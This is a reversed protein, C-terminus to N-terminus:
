PNLNDKILEKFRRSIETSVPGPETAVTVGNVAEIYQTERLSSSLFAEQFRHETLSEIPTDVEKAGLYEVILDRTVGALCGSSLTPTILEGDMLLFVNSGSGECLNGAINKFIVETSGQSIAWDLGVVNEAYSNTKIGALVGQENRPWPAVHVRASPALPALPSCAVVTLPESDLRDSGLPGDGTTFTIRVKGFSIKNAAVVDFISSRIAERDPLTKMRMGRASRELRLLHRDIAFPTGDYVALAEFVGDGAVFGHDVASIKADNSDLLKGNISITAM